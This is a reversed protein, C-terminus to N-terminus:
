SARVALREALAVVARAREAVPVDIMRGDLEIAGKGDTLARDYAAVIARAEAIAAPTPSFAENVIPVQAPHICFSGEFGPRRAAEVGARFADLDRFEAISGVLGLPVRGAARAALQM